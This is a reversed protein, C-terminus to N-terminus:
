VSNLGQFFVFSFTYDVGSIKVYPVCHSDPYLRFKKQALICFGNLQQPYSSSEQAPNPAASRRLTSLYFVIKKKM